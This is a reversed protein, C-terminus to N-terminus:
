RGGYFFEVIPFLLKWQPYREIEAAAAMAFEASGVSERKCYTSKVQPLRTTDMLEDVAISGKSTPVTCVSTTYGGELSISATIICDNGSRGEVRVLSSGLM